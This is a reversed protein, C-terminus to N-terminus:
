VLRRATSSDTLYLEGDAEMAAGEILVIGSHKGREVSGKDAEVGLAEAGCLTAWRAVERLPIHGLARMEAVMSLTDNSALSDTGICIRVGEERLMSVPPQLHSYVLLEQVLAYEKLPVIVESIVRYAFHIVFEFDLTILTPELVLTDSLPVM